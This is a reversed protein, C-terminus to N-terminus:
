EKVQAFKDTYIEEIKALDLGSGEALAMSARLWEPPMVADTTRGMVANEYELEIVKDDAEKTFNKLYKLAYARNEKLYRTAKFIARLAGELAKPRQDIIAQSAVWVDPLSPGIDKGYDVISRGEGTALLQLSLPSFLSVADVQKSKLAPILGGAGVPVTQIEGGGKKAAWLAFFDVTSGKATIGVKKGALDKVSKIPSDKLVILHWGDAVVQAASVIKEKVGKKVALAVGPPFFDILDAEGAALAQQAAAGGRYATIEAQVGFQKYYGLEEAVYVAALPGYNPVALGIKVKEQAGLPGSAAILAIAAAAIAFQVIRRFRFM